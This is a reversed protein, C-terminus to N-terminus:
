RRRRGAVLGGLGLLAVSAPAPVVKYEYTITVSGSAALDTVNITSDTSGSVSFGASADIDVPVTGAGIFQVFDALLTTMDMGSADDSLFGFDHFDPGSDAVGDSPGVGAGAVQNIGAFGSLVAPNGVDITIFGSLNIAFNPAPLTSDNEATVNAGILADFSFSVKCLERTGGQTDFQAFNLTTGGPSLPFSFNQTESTVDASALGALAAVVAAVAAHRISM